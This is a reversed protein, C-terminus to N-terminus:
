KLIRGRKDILGRALLAEKILKFDKLQQLEEWTRVHGHFEGPVTEDLVVFQGDSVGIRRPETDKIQFSNSLAGTGDRPAPSKGGLSSGRSNPHHYGADKYTLIGAAAAQQEERERAARNM